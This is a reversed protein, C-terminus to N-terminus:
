AMHSRGSLASPRPLTRNPTRASRPPHGAFRTYRPGSDTASADASTAEGDNGSQDYAYMWGGSGLYFMVLVAVTGWIHVTALTFAIGALAVAHCVRAMAVEPDGIKARGLVILHLVFGGVLFGAGVFGYQMTTLLWFNDVSKTLWFPRPWDNFGIGFIPNSRAARWGSEFIAIRTWGSSSNFTLSEIIMTVPTRDSLADVVVYATATLILFLKWRGNMIKGWSLMIIQLMCALLPASSLAFFATGMSFCIGFVQMFKSKRFLFVFNALTLACFLGYLIPHEFLVYVRELGWRPYASKGRFPVDLGPIKDLIEPIVLQGTVTEIVALPLMVWLAIFMFRFVLKYDQANRILVRGVLYGGVMEICTMGAFAIRATGHVKILAVFIWFGFLFILIDIKTLRGSKGSLIQMMFPVFIALLFIRNPSLRVGAIEFGIPIMITLLFLCVISAATVAQPAKTLAPGRNDAALSTTAM